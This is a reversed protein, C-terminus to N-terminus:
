GTAAPWQRPLQQHDQQGVMPLRQHWAHAAPSSGHPWRLDCQGCYIALFDKEEIELVINVNPKISRHWQNGIGILGAGKDFKPPRGNHSYHPHEVLHYGAPDNRNFFQEYHERLLGRRESLGAM